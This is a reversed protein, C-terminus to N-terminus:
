FLSTKDNKLSVMKRETIKDDPIIDGFLLNSKVIIIKGEYHAAHTQCVSLLYQPKM